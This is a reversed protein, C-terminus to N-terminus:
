HRDESRVSFIEGLEILEILEVRGQYIGGPRSEELLGAKTTPM